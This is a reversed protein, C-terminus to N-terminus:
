GTIIMTFWSVDMSEKEEGLMDACRTWMRTVEFSEGM